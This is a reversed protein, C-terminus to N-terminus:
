LGFQNLSSLGNTMSDKAVLQKATQNNVKSRFENSKLEHCVLTWARVM